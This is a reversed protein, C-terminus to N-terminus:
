TRPAGVVMQVDRPFGWAGVALSETSGESLIGERLLGQFTWPVGFFISLGQTFFLPHTQAEWM